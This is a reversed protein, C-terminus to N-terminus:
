IRVGGQFRAGHLAAAALIDARLAPARVVFDKMVREVEAM